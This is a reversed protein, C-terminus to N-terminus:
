WQIAKRKDMVSSCNIINKAFKNSNGGNNCDASKIVSSVLPAWDGVMHQSFSRMILKNRPSVGVETRVINPPWPEFFLQLCNFIQPFISLICVYLIGICLPIAMSRKSLLNQPFAKIPMKQKM